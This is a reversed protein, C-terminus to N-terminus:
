DSDTGYDVLLSSKKNSKATSSTASTGAETKPKKSPIDQDAKESPDPKRKDLQSSSGEGHTRHKILTAVTRANKSKVPDFTPGNKSDFLSAGTKLLKRELRKKPDVPESNSSVCKKGGEFGNM